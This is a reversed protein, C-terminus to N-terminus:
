LEKNDSKSESAFILNTYPALFPTIRHPGRASLLVGKNFAALINGLGFMLTKATTILM